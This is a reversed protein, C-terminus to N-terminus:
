GCCISIKIQKLKDGTLIELKLIFNEVDEIAQGFIGDENRSIEGLVNTIQSKKAFRANIRQNRVYINLNDEPEIGNKRRRYALYTLITILEENKMRTDKVKFLFGSYEKAIRKIKEVYEKKVYANWM